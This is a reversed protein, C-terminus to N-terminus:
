GKVYSLVECILGDQVRYLDLGRLHAGEGSAEVWTLKWRKLCREGYGFIEEIEFQSQSFAQFFDQYYQRISAKGTYVAGDPAPAPSELRCDDSLLALMAELDHDNIARHFDLALRM